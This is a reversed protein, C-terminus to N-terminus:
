QRKDIARGIDNIYKQPLVNQMADIIRNSKITVISGSLLATIITIMIGTMLAGQNKKTFSSIVLGFSAAFITILLEGAIVPLSYKMKFYAFVLPTAILLPIFAIMFVALLQQVLYNIVNTGSAIIRAYIGNREDFYYKYLMLTLIMLSLLVFNLMTSVPKKIASKSGMRHGYLAAALQEKFGNGKTTEIRYGRKTNVVYADYQGNILRSVPINDKTLKKVSINSKSRLESQGVVGLTLRPQKMNSVYGALIVPVIILMGALWLYIKERWNLYLINKFIMAMKEKLSEIPVINIM